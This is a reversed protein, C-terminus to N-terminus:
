FYISNVDEEITVGRHKKREKEGLHSGMEGNVDSKESLPATNITLASGGGRKPNGGEREGKRTM